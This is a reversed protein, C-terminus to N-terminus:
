RNGLMNQQNSVCTEIRSNMSYVWQNAGSYTFHVGDATRGFNGTIDSSLIFHEQGVIQRITESVFDRKPQMIAARPGVVRPPGIWCVRMDNNEAILNLVIYSWFQNVLQIYDQSSVRSWDNGGLIILLVDVHYQLVMLEIQSRIDYWQRVGWGSHGSRYFYSAGVTILYNQLARGPAGAVQSDGILLIRKNHLVSTPNTSYDALVSNTQQRYQVIQANDVDEIVQKQQNTSFIVFALISLFMGVM